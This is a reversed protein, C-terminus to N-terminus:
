CHSYGQCFLLWSFRMCSVPVETMKVSLDEVEVNLLNCAALTILILEFLLLIGWRSLLDFLGVLWCRTNLSSDPLPRVWGRCSSSSQKNWGLVGTRVTVQLLRREPSKCLSCEGLHEGPGSNDCLILKLFGRVPTEGAHVREAGVEFGEQAYRSPKQVCVKTRWLTRRHRTGSSGCWRLKM